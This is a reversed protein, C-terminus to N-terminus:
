VVFFIFISAITNEVPFLSNIDAFGVEYFGFGFGSCLGLGRVRFGLGKM